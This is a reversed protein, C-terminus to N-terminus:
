PVPDLGELGVELWKLNTKASVGIKHVGIEFVGFGPIRLTKTSVGWITHLGIGLRCQRIKNKTQASAIFLLKVLDVSIQPPVEFFQGDTEMHLM